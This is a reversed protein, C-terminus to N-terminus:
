SPITSELAKTSNLVDHFNTWKGNEFRYLDDDTIVFSITNLYKDCNYNGDSCLYTDLGVKGMYMGNQPEFLVANNLKSLDSSSKIEENSLAVICHGQYQGNEISTLYCVVVPFLSSIRGLEVGVGSYYYTTSGSEYVTFREGAQNKWGGLVYDSHTKLTNLYAKLFLSFDECDGGERQVMQDLSFLHDPSETKYKFNLVRLMKFSVCALNLYGSDLCDDSTSQEFRVLSQPLYSNQKFWDISSNIEQQVQFLENRIVTLNRRTQGLDFEVSSLQNQTQSLQNRTHNLELYTQNLKSSLNKIELNAYSLNENLKQSIQIQSSLNSNTLHLQSQLNKSHTKLSEIEFFFIISSVLFILALFFLSITLFQPIKM